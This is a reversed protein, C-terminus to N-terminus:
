TALVRSSRPEARTSVYNGLNLWRISNIACDICLSIRFLSNKCYWGDKRFMPLAAAHWWVAVGDEDRRKWAVRM